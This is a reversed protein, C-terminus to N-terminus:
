SSAEIGVEIQHCKNRDDSDREQPYPYTEPRCYVACCGIYSWEEAVARKMGCASDRGYDWDEKKEETPIEPGDELGSTETKGRHAPWPKWISHRGFAGIWEEDRVASQRLTFGGDVGTKYFVDCTKQDRSLRDASEGAPRSGFQVRDEEGDVEAQERNTDEATM